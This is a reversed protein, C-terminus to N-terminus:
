TALFALGRELGRLTTNSTSTEQVGLMIGIGMKQIM